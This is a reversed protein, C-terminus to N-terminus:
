LGDETVVNKGDMQKIYGLDLLRKQHQLPIDRMLPELGLQRLSAFEDANLQTPANQEMKAIQWPKLFKFPGTTQLPIEGVTPSTSDVIQLPNFRSLQSYTKTNRFLSPLAFDNLVIAFSLAAADSLM